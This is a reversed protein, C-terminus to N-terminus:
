ESYAATSFLTVAFRGDTAITLQSFQPDLMAAKHTPSALWGEMAQENTQANCALNESINRKLDRAITSTTFGDHSCRDTKLSEEKVEALRKDAFQQLTNDYYLVPAKAELRQENIKRLLIDRDMTFSPTATPSPMVMASPTPSADKTVANLGAISGFVAVTGLVFSAAHTAIPRIPINM